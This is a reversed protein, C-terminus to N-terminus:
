AFSAVAVPSIDHYGLIEVSAAGYVVGSAEDPRPMFRLKTWTVMELPNTPVVSSSLVATVNGNNDASFDKKRAYGPYNANTLNEQISMEARYRDGRNQTIQNAQIDTGYLLWVWQCFYKYGVQTQSAMAIDYPQVAPLVLLYLAGELVPTKPWDRANTIGGFPQPVLSGNIFATAKLTAMQQTVFTYYTDIPSIFSM